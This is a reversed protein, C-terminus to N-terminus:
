AWRDLEILGPQGEYNRASSYRWHEPLDVYGRRVPNQHIYDLKQRMVAPSCVLEAHSGEQWLQYQRDRKHARKALSLRQLASDAGRQELHDLMKRATYSKFSSVCRALDPAQALYHLHNELVVYGYLRLGQNAQQYRWCDLLIDVLAPRAFLPLWEVVTCTLFHPQATDTIVYRSRGM